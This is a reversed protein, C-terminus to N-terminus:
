RSPALAELLDLVGVPGDVVVDAAALLEIPAEDSNVAIALTDRGAAALRALAAFAPLDGRDDGIFCVADLGTALEEVVTGKDADVPPRLEVSMRGPHAILGTAAAQTASWAEVWGLHESATRVHLTVALGKHEVGVGAPAEAAAAAAVLDVVPRWATAAAVEEVEGGRARELGYLGVLIVRTDRSERGLREVLYTVPRGSIVAVRAYRLALRALVSPVGDLPVAAAPDDVIQALTGDFDTLIGAHEPGALWPALRDGLSRGELSGV